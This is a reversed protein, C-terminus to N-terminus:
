PVNLILTYSQMARLGLPDQVAIEVQHTGACEKGVKLTILGSRPDISMGRLGSVLSYTLADGDQDEARAQYTYVEGQFEGPKSVFCPPANPITVPKTTFPIGSGDSDHPVVTLSISDGRNFRDGALSASKEDIDRGNISWSYNFQIYDGDADFGAPIATIDVGRYILEPKIAVSAVTPPSNQITTTSSATKGAATVTVTIRDGKSFRGGPVLSTGQEGALMTNNHRWQYEVKGGGAYDCVAQLTTTISPTEPLIKVFFGESGADDRHSTSQQVTREEPTGGPVPVTRDNRCASVNGIIISAGLIFYSTKFLLTM